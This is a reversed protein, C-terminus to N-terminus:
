DKLKLFNSFSDIDDIKSIQKNEKFHDFLKRYLFIKGYIHQPM